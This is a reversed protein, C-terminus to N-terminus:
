KNLLEDLVPTLTDTFVQYGEATLHGGDTTYGPYIENTEENLLPTFMDVFTCGNREAILKIKVNNFAAKHNNRGWDKGMSTLSVLVIHSDPLSERLSKVIDEYREFMTDFNNAGILMVVAKPELEFASVELREWLGFTTDGGIGRNVTVYQPYFTALDYGETLSDGLFAADVEGPTYRKNEKEFLAIRNEYHERFLAAIEEQKKKEPLKVAFHYIGFGIAAALILCGLAVLIKKKRNM